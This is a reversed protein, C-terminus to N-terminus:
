RFSLIASFVNYYNCKTSQFINVYFYFYHIVENNNDDYSNILTYEFVKHRM